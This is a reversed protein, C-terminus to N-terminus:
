VELDEEFAEDTTDAPQNMESMAQSVRNNEEQDSMVPKPQSSVGQMMMEIYRPIRIVMGPYILDQNLIKSQNEHYIEMWKYGNGYINEKAAIKWLSDGKAVEYYAPYHSDFIAKKSLLDVKLQNLDDEAKLA